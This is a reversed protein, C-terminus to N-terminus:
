HDQLNEVITRSVTFVAGLSLDGDDDHGEM